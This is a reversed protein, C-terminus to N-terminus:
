GMRAKEAAILAARALDRPIYHECEQICLYVADVQAESPEYSVREGRGELASIALTLAQEQEPTFVLTRGLKRGVGHRKALTRIM